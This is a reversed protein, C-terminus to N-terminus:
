DSEAPDALTWGAALWASVEDPHVDATTPGTEHLPADRRMPLLVAVVETSANQDSKADIENGSADSDVELVEAPEDAVETEASTVDMIGGDKPVPTAGDTAIPQTNTEALAPAASPNDAMPERNVTLRETEAKTAAPTKKAM